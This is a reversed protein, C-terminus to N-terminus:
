SSPDDIQPFSFVADGVLHMAQLQEATVIAPGTAAPDRIAILGDATVEDVVIWHSGGQVRLIIPAGTSELYGNLVQLLAAPATVDQPFQGGLWQRGPVPALEELAYQLGRTQFGGWIIRRDGIEVQPEFHPSAALQDQTVQVGLRGAAMEGSAAGCWNSARQRVHPGADPGPTAGTPQDGDARGGPPLDRTAAAPGVAPPPATPAAPPAPAAAAAAMQAQAAANPGAQPQGTAAPASAQGAAANMAANFGSSSMSTLAATGLVAAAALGIAIADAITIGLIAAQHCPDPTGGAEYTVSGCDALATGPTVALYLLIGGLVAAFRAIATTM